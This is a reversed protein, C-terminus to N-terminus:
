KGTPLHRLEQVLWLLQGDSVAGGEKQRAVVQKNALFDVVLRLTTGDKNCLSSTVRLTLPEGTPFRVLTLLRGIRCRVKLFTISGEHYYFVGNVNVCQNPLHVACAVLEDFVGETLRELELLLQAEVTM